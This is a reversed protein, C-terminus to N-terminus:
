DAMEFFPQLIELADHIMRFHKQRFQLPSLSFFITLYKTNEAGKRVSQAKKFAWTIQLSAFM